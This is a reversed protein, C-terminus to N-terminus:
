KKGCAVKLLTEGLGARAPAWKATSFLSTTMHVVKGHAMNGSFETVSVMRRMEQACNYENKVKRSLFTDGVTLQATKYDYLTWIEVLDGKRRITDPDVYVTQGAQVNAKVEVWEAYAPVTSLTLLTLFILRKMHRKPQHLSRKDGSSRDRGTVEPRVFSEPGFHAEENWYDSLVLDARHSALHNEVSVSDHVHGCKLCRWRATWEMFRDEVLVAGCHSCIM